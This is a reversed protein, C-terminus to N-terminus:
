RKADKEKVPQQELYSEMKPGFLTEPRLYGSMRPNEGWDAFKTDIVQKFDDLRFGEKWRARIFRSTNVSSVNYRRECVKNLYGIIEAYPIDPIDNEKVMATMEATVAIDARENVFNILGQTEMMLLHYPVQSENPREGYYRKYMARMRDLEELIENALQNM